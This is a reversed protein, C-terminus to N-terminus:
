RRGPPSKKESPPRFLNLFLQTSEDDLQSALDSIRPSESGQERAGSQQQQQQSGLTGFVEHISYPEMPNTDSPPGSSPLVSQPPPMKRRESEIGSPIGEPPLNFDFPDRMYLPTQRMAYGPHVQASERFVSSYNGPDEELRAAAQLPPTEKISPQPERHKEAEQERKWEEMERVYRKKDEAAQMDYIVKEEKSIAKWRAAISRALDAFGIKGHSRRPKGEKRTPMEELIQKRMHHFFINYSSLPRKPKQRDKKPEEKLRAPPRSPIAEPRRAQPRDGGVAAQFPDEDDPDFFGRGSSMDIDKTIVFFSDVIEESLISSGIEEPQWERRKNIM